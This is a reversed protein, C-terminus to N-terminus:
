NYFITRGGPMLWFIKPDAPHTCTSGERSELTHASSLVQFSASLDWGSAKTTQIAVSLVNVAMCSNPVAGNGPGPWCEARTPANLM